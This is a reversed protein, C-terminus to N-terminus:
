QRTLSKRLGTTMAKAKVCDPPLGNIRETWGRTMDEGMKYHTIYSQPRPCLLNQSLFFLTFSRLQAEINSDNIEIEEDLLTFELM